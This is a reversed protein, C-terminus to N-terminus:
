INSIAEIGPHKRQYDKFAKIALHRDKGEYKTSNDQVKDGSGVLKHYEILYYYVKNQWYNKERKLEIGPTTPTTSLEQYREAIGLRYVQLKDIMEYLDRIDQEARKDHEALRKLEKTDEPNYFHLYMTRDVQEARHGYRTFLDNFLERQKDTM